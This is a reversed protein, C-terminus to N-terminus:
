ILDGTRDFTFEYMDVSVIDSDMGSIATIWREQNDLYNPDETQINVTLTVTVEQPIYTMGLEQTLFKELGEECVSLNNDSIAKRLKLCMEGRSLADYKGAREDRLREWM